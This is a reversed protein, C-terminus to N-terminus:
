FFVGKLDGFFLTLISNRLIDIELMFNSKDVENYNRHCQM